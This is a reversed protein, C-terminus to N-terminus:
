TIPLQSRPTFSGELRVVQYRYTRSLSDLVFSGVVQYVEYEDMPSLLQKTTQFLQSKVLFLELHWDFTCRMSHVVSSPLGFFESAADRSHNIIIEMLDSITPNWAHSIARCVNEIIKGDALPM